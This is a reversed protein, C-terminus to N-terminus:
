NHKLFFGQFIEEVIVLTVLCEFRNHSNYRYEAMKLADLIEYKSTLKTVVYNKAEETNLLFMDIAFENLCGKIRQITNKLGANYQAKLRAIISKGDLKREINLNRKDFLKLVFDPMEHLMLSNGGLMKKMGSHINEQVSSSQFGFTLEWSFCCVAWHRVISWLFDCYDASKPYCVKVIDLRQKVIPLTPSKRM